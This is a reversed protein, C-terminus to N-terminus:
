LNTESEPIPIIYISGTSPTKYSSVNKTGGENPNFVKSKERRKLFFFAQGEGYFEKYYEAELMDFADDRSTANPDPLSANQVGRQARVENIREVAGPMDGQLLLNEAIIYYMESMRMLPQFYAIPDNENNRTYSYLKNSIYQEQAVRSAAWQRVRVDEWLSMDGGTNDFRFINDGLNALSVTYTQGGRTGAFYSNWRTYLDLNYVGFIVESFFIYNHDAEVKEKDAWSFPKKDGAFANDIVSQAVQAAEKADGKFMLARAQLALVAYYNMRYSRLYRDFIDKETVNDTPKIKTLDLVGDTIIPDNALLEKAQEVDQLLLAFFNDPTQKEHPVVDASTNYPIGVSQTTSGFLRFLDLHLFARLGYAEGLVMRKKADTLITSAEVERIFNNIRFITNYATSWVNAFSSRLENEDYESMNKFYTFDANSLEADYFYYHALLEIDTLTMRGGYLKDSSLERYLGNLVSSIGEESSYQIEDLNQDIPQAGDLWESCSGAALAIMMLAYLMVNKMM